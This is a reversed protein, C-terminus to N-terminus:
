SVPPTVREGLRWGALVLTADDRLPRGHEIVALVVQRIMEAPRVGEDLLRRVMDHLRAAGFHAGSSSRAETIGDTHFLVVDGETLRFTMSMRDELDLGLPPSPEVPLEDFTGDLHFVAPPPHGANTLEMQGTGLDLMAMQCTVFRSEGYQELLVADMASATDVLSGGTRRSHRYSGLVLNAMRCAELGHGMADFLGIHARNGNVAYDFADGAIDYAPELMGAILIETSSFTLPPLLSWRLEAELSVPRTRRALSLTDGYRSKAVILEGALGALAKWGRLADASRDDTVVGLVGIREASDLIAVWIRDGDFAVTEGRFADGAATGDVAVADSAGAIPQLLLQELDVLLVVTERGGLVLGAEVIAAGLTDPLLGTSAEILGVLAHELPTM